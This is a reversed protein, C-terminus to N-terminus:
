GEVLVSLPLFSWLATGSKMMGELLNGRSLGDIGVVKMRTGAIHIVHMQVGARQQLQRLRLIIDTLKESTSHGKFFCGEFTSNDTFVLVEAGTLRGKSELQELRTV